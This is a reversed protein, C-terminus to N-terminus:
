HGVRQACGPTAEAASRRGHLDTMQEGTMLVVLPVRALLGYELVCSKRVPPRIAAKPRYARASERDALFSFVMLLLGYM